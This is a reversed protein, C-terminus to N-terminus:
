VPHELCLNTNEVAEKHTDLNKCRCQDIFLGLSVGHCSQRVLVGARHHKTLDDMLSVIEFCHKERSTWARHRSHAATTRGHRGSSVSSHCKSKHGVKESSSSSRQYHSHHKSGSRHLRPNSSDTFDAM